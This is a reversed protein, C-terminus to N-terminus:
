KLCAERIVPGCRVAYSLLRLLCSPQDHVVCKSADAPKNTTSHTYTPQRAQITTRKSRQKERSGWMSMRRRHHHHANPTRPTRTRSPHHFLTRITIHYPSRPRRCPTLRHTNTPLHTTPAPTYHLEVTSGALITTQPGYM